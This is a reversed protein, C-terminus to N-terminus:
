CPEAGDAPDKRATLLKQATLLTETGDPSTTRTGGGTPQEATLLLKM